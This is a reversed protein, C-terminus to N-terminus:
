RGPPPVDIALPQVSGGASRIRGVVDALSGEVRRASAAVLAGVAAFRSAVVSGIGGSAAIVLVTKGSFDIPETNVGTMMGSGSRREM